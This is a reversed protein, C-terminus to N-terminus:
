LEDNLEGLREFDGDLKRRAEFLKRLQSRQKQEVALMAKVTDYYAGSTVLKGNITWRFEESIPVVLEDLTKGSKTRVKVSAGSKILKVITPIMQASGNGPNADKYREMTYALVTQGAIIKQYITKDWIGLSFALFPIQEEFDQGLEVLRDILADIVPQTSRLGVCSTKHLFIAYFLHGIRPKSHKILEIAEDQKENQILESLKSQESAAYSFGSSIFFLIVLLKLYVQHM